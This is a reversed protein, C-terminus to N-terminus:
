TRQFLRVQLTFGNRQGLYSSGREALGARNAWDGLQEPAFGLWLDGCNERAWAQTHACLETVLLVGQSALCAASEGLTRAPDPTHHLVMNLVVLNAELGARQADASDGLHFHVNTLDTAAVTERAARLMNEANDFAHVTEYRRGLVPLLWGEGPGLELALERQQADLGDIVTEIADAYRSPAAILDQQERFSHVNQRFFDRSNQERSLQLQQLRLSAGGDLELSDASDLIARQLDNCSADAEADGRRYFIHNGDRESRLLGAASLIKLHHSLAPQRVALVECLESVGMADQRLLRLIRLRLPDAAAKLFGVM